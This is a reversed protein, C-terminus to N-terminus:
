ILWQASTILPGVMDAAALIAKLPASVPKAELASIASRLDGLTCVASAGDDEHDSQEEGSSENDSM